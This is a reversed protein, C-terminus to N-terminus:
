FNLKNFEELPMPKAFYYGQAVDCSSDKLFNVHETTEVGEAIIQLQLEKAMAITHRIVIKGKESTLTDDLFSKDIKIVDAPINRLMNLSSYGAGFDDVELRFGMDQLRKLLGYLEEANDFFMTETIELSLDQPTLEYRTLLENLIKEIRHNNIHYRSVNVSVPFRRRGEQHWGHIAKCAEEWMYEDLKIIFGNKEFLPIFDDPQIMGKVPHKWRTLVEAGVIEGNELNYKPQLYMLFQHEQLAHEMEAEIRSDKMIENRYEEDYFACFQMANYKISKKALSARDCMLNVAMDNEDKPLYVGYSTKVEFGFENTEIKKKIKEIFRIIEGKTEYMMCICFVDSHIRSYCNPICVLEKLVGAIHILVLDGVRMGQLDNIIKFREVDFVIMAHKHGNDWMLLKTVEEDFKEFNPAGTLSDFERRYKLTATTRIENSVDRMTGIIRALSGDDKHSYQLTVRYWHNSGDFHVFRCTVTREGSRTTFLTRYLEIDDAYVINKTRDDETFDASFIEEIGFCEQFMPSCYRREMEYDIEFVISNLQKVAASYMREMFNDNEM